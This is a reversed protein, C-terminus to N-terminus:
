PHVISPQMMNPEQHVLTVLMYQITKTIGGGEIEISIQKILWIPGDHNKMTSRLPITDFLIVVSLPKLKVWRVVALLEAKPHNFPCYLTACLRQVGM